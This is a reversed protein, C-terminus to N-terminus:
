FDPTHVVQKGDKEALIVILMHEEKKKIKLTEITKLKAKYLNDAYIEIREGKFLCVYGCM